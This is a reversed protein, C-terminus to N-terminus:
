IHGTVDDDHHEKHIVPVPFHEALDILDHDHQQKKGALDDHLLYQRVPLFLFINVAHEKKDNRHAADQHEAVHGPFMRGHIMIRHNGGDANQHHVKDNEIEVMQGDFCKRCLTFVNDQFLIQLGIAVLQFDNGPGTVSDFRQAMVHLVM